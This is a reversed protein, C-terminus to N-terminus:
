KTLGYLIDIARKEVSDSPLKNKLTTYLCEIDDKKETEKDKLYEGVLEHFLDLEDRLKM